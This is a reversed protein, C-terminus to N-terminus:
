ASRAQTSYTDQLVALAGRARRAVTSRSVGRRAAVRSAADRALLGGLGRGARPSRAVEALELLIRCDDLDVLGKETVDGLLDYLRDWPGTVAPGGDPHAARELLEVDQVPVERRRGSNGVGLDTLVERRANLLVTSAVQVRKPWSVTRGCIWLQAAVLEDIRVSLPSLSNALRIAGPLLLWLLAGTAAPDDGGDVAGMEALALLVENVEDRDEHQRVWAPLDVLEDCVELEPRARRWGHWRDCASVWLDGDPMELGLQTGVSM